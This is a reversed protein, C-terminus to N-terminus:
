TWRDSCKWFLSNWGIIVDDQVIVVEPLKINHLALMQNYFWLLAYDQAWEADQFIKAPLYRLSSDRELSDILMLLNPGNRSRLIITKALWFFKQLDKSTKLSASSIFSIFARRFTPLGPKWYNMYLFSSNVSSEIEHCFPTIMFVVSKYVQRMCYESILRM